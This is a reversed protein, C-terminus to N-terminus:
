EPLQSNMFDQWSCYKFRYRDFSSIDSGNYHPVRLVVGNGLEGDIRIPYGRVPDYLKIEWWEETKPDFAWQSSLLDGNEEYGSLPEFFLTDHHWSMRSIRKPEDLKIGLDYEKEEGTALDHVQLHLQGDPVSLLFLQGGGLQEWYTDQKWSRIPTILGSTVDVAELVHEQAWFSAETSSEEDGASLMSNGITKIILQGGFAGELFCFDDLPCVTELSGDTIDLCVLEDKTQEIEYTSLIFYLKENGGAIGSGFEQNAEFTYLIQRNTGDSNLLDIHPHVQVDPANMGPFFLIVKQDFYLLDPMYDETLSLYAPCSDTNHECNPSSCLIVDQHSEEDIIHINAYTNDESLDVYYYGSEGQAGRGISGANDSLYELSMNGAKLGATSDPTSAVPLGCSTLLLCAATLSFVIHHKINM